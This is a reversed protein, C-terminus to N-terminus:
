KERLAAFSAFPDHKMGQPWQRNEHHRREDISRRLESIDNENMSQTRQTEALTLGKHNWPQPLFTNGPLSKSGSGQIGAKVETDETNCVM